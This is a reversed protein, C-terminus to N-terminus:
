NRMTTYNWNTLARKAQRLTDEVILGVMPRQLVIDLMDVGPIGLNTKYRSYGPLFDYVAAGERLHQEICLHHAVLGPKYKPDDEFVFASQYAYIWGKRVFNYLYGILDTGTSVRILEVTGRPICARILRKHFSDFFPYAFSGTKGRRTWYATSVEKMADYFTLAEEVNDARRSVLEGKAKYLKVARRIQYRTNSSLHDLYNRGSARIGRLDVKWSPHKSMLVQRIGPARAYQQYQQPVGKLHLEDPRYHERHVPAEGKHNFLFDICSQIAQLGLDRDILLGNYAITLIDREKEGLHHLLLADTTVVLHRHQRSPQLLGLAVIDNSQKAVLVWPLIQAEEVWAGIWDWSQFFSADARGELARWREGLDALTSMRELAFVIQNDEKINLPAEM